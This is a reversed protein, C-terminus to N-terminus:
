RRSSTVPSVTSCESCRMLTAFMNVKLPIKCGLCKVSVFGTPISGGRIPEGDVLDPTLPARQELYRRNPTPLPLPPEEARMMGNSNVGSMDKADPLIQKPKRSKDFYDLKPQEPHLKRRKEYESMDFGTNEKVRISAEVHAMIRYQELVEEEDQNNAMINAEQLIANLEDTGGQNIVDNYWSSRAATAEGSALHPLADVPEGEGYSITQAAKAASQLREDGGRNRSMRKSKQKRLQGYREM